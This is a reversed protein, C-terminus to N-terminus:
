KKANKVVNKRKIAEKQHYFSIIIFYNLNKKQNHLSIALIRIRIWPRELDPDPNLNKAPDPDPDPDSNSSYPDSVSFLLIGYMSLCFPLSKPVTIPLSTRFPLSHLLSAYLLTFLLSPSTLEPLILIRHMGIKYMYTGVHIRIWFATSGSPM